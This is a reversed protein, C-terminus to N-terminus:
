ELRSQLSQQESYSKFCDGRAQNLRKLEIKSSNPIVRQSTTLETKESCEKNAHADIRSSSM